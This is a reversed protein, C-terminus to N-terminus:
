EIRVNGTGPSRVYIRKTKHGDTIHVQSSSATGRNRFTFTVPNVVSIGKYDSLLDFSKIVTGDTFRIEYASNELRVEVDKGEKIARLRAMQMDGFVQRAAGSLVYGKRMDATSIFAVTSLISILAIVILLEILTFGKANM